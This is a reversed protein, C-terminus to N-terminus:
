RLLLVYGGQTETEMDIVLWENLLAPFCYGWSSSATLLLLFHTSLYGPKRAEQYSLESIHELVPNLWSKRLPGSIFIKSKAPQITETM